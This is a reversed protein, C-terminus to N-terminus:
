SKRLAEVLKDLDSLSTYLHPTIRVGQVAPTEIAVTFIRHQEFLYNALETPSMSSHAINAIACDFTPSNFRIHPFAAVKETWYRCLYRLREYKLRSGIANHFAIANEIALHNSCLQTGNREFKRINDRQTSYDGFLPWIHPIKEKRVYLMGSGLPACLWKHLSTGYYDCGLDGIKFDLHAFAHAGDVWVEVGAQKGLQCLAKVPLIQGTLNIVHTILIAKTKPTIAKRYAEIVQPDTKPLDITKVVIGERQSRMQLAEVMNPYDQNCCIVEDGPKFDTGSILIDLAETTNRLLAIEEPSVGAMQALLSRIRERDPFQDRRMYLTHQRNIQEIRSIWAAQTSVPMPSFYGNELNIFDPSPMFAERIPKWYVEDRYTDLTKAQALHPELAGWAVLSAGTKLFERRLM